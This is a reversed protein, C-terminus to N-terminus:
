TSVHKPGFALLDCPPPEDLAEGLSSLTQDALYTQGAGEAQFPRTTARHPNKRRIMRPIAEASRTRDFPRRNLDEVTHGLARLYDLVKGKLSFGAHDSAVAIKM